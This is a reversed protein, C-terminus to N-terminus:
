NVNEYVSLYDSVMTKIDFKKSFEFGRSIMEDSYEENHEHLLIKEVLSEKTQFVFDASPVIDKIGNVDSGLFPRRSALAELTVGSMGEYDSYLINFDVSQMLKNVDDRFGIFKVRDELSLQSVLERCLQMRDGEGALVLYYDSPLLSLAEILLDQRKPHRFSAAMMIVKADEPLNLLDSLENRLYGKTQIITDLDVGNNICIVKNKFSDGLWDFLNSKVEETIAIVKSYANYIFQEIFRFYWKGRRNNETSHETFILKSKSGSLRYALSAWYSSPFLHVHICDFNHQKIFRSLKIVGLPNYVSSLGLDIVPINMSELEQIHSSHSEKNKLVLLSVDVGKNKMLPLTRVILKEAGGRGVSNIVILVRM